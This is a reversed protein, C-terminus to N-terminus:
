KFLAHVAGVPPRPPDLVKAPKNQLKHLHSPKSRGEPCIMMSHYVFRAAMEPPDPEVQHHRTQVVNIFRTSRCRASTSTACPPEGFGVTLFSFRKHPKLLRCRRWDRKHRLLIQTSTAGAGTLRRRSSLELCFNIVKGIRLPAALIGV